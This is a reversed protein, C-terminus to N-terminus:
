IIKGLSERKFRGTAALLGLNFPDDRRKNGDSAWEEVLNKLEEATILVINRDFHQAHYRVAEVESDQTFEPGNDMVIVQPLGTYEALGPAGRNGSGGGWLGEIEEMPQPGAPIKVVFADAIGSSAQGPCGRDLGGFVPHGSM